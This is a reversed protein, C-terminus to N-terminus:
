HIPTSNYEDNDRKCFLFSSLGIQLHLIWSLRLSDAYSGEEGRRGWQNNYTLNLADGITTLIHTWVTFNIAFFDFHALKAWSIPKGVGFEHLKASLWTWCLQAGGFVLTIFQVQNLSLIELQDIM